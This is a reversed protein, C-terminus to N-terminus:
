KKTGGCKGEGCKGDKKKDDAAKKDGGCKGEGCKGDKKKDDVKKAGGCKGEGCKGDAKKDAQALQYGSDLKAMGFPNDAASALPAFATTAVFAAGAALALTTKKKM